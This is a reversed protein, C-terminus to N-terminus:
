FSRWDSSGRIHIGRRFIKFVRLPMEYNGEQTEPRVFGMTIFGEETSALPKMVRKVLTRWHNTDQPLVIWDVDGWGIEGLDM